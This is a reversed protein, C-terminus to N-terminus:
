ASRDLYVPRQPLQAGDSALQVHQDVVLMASVLERQLRLQREHVAHAREHLEVPLPPLSLQWLDVASPTAFQAPDFEAKAQLLEEADAAAAECEALVQEWTPPPDIPM